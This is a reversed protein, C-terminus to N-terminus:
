MTPQRCGALDHILQGEECRSHERACDFYLAMDAPSADAGQCMESQDYITSACNPCTDLESGFQHLDEASPGEPDLGESLDWDRDGSDGGGWSSPDDPSGNDGDHRVRRM